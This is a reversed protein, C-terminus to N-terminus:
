IRLGPGSAKCICRFYLSRGRDVGPAFGNILNLLALGKERNTNLGIRAPSRIKAVYFARGNWHSDQLSDRLMRPFFLYRFLYEFGKGSVHGGEHACNENMFRCSGNKDNRGVM